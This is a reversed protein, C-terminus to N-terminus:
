SIENNNLIHSLSGSMAQKAKEQLAYWLRTKILKFFIYLKNKIM